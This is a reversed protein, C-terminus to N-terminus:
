RDAKLYSPDFEALRILMPRNLFEVVGGSLILLEKERLYRLIRNLHISTIGLADALIHQSLPCEYSSPMSHHLRFGLELLFHVTRVLASRRGLNVLHQTVIAEDRTLSWLFAETLGPSNRMAAILQIKSVESIVLDTLAEIDRDSAQLFLGQLGIFDGPLRFDIVQRGGDELRKYSCV